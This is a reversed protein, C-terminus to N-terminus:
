GNRKGRLGNAASMMDSRSHQARGLEALNEVIGDTAEPVLDGDERLLRRLSMTATQIHKLALAAAGDEDGANIAEAILRHELASQKMRGELVLNRHRYLRVRGDIARFVEQLIKSEGIELLQNRRDELLNVYEEIAGEEALISLQNASALFDERQSLTARRLALRVMIPELAEKVAYVDLVEQIPVERVYVGVRPVIEVLGEAQLRNLAERIPTSSLGLRKSLDETSVKTGSQLDGMHILNRISETAVDTASQLVGRM